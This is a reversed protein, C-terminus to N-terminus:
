WTCTTGETTVLSAGACGNRDGFAYFEVVHDGDTDVPISFRPAGGAISGAATFSFDVEALYKGSESRSNLYVGSYEGAGSVIVVGIPRGLVMGGARIRTGVALPGQTLQEAGTVDGRWEPMTEAASTYAYVDPVPRQVRVRVEVKRV